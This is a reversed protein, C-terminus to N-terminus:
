KWEETNKDKRHETVKGDKRFSLYNYADQHVITRDPLEEIWGHGIKLPTINAGEPITTVINSKITQIKGRQNKIGLFVAPDIDIKGTWPVKRVEYHLHIGTVQGTAGMIGLVDGANVTQGEAVKTSLLHAHILDYKNDKTRLIVYRGWGPPDWGVKLISGDLTAYIEKEGILDIGTHYGKAYTFGTPPPEKYAKTITAGMVPMTM